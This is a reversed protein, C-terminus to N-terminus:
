YKSLQLFEKESWEGRIEKWDGHPNKLYVAPFYHIFLPTLCMTYAGVRHFVIRDGASLLRNNGEITFLRDYELCTNGGIVQPCPAINNEKSQYVLEKFYDTKHFFPDVDDRTADTTIFYQGDHRKVDMVECVYDFVSAVLANGPEVIITINRNQEDLADHFASAYNCFTPKGPMPGFYGGGLDWYELNLDYKKIVAQSYNIVNKYFNESRTRSTRHTHLGALEVNKLEKIMDIARKFDSGNAGGANDDSFGFRSNDDSHNEDDPSIASIDINLRIGVKHKKSESLMKLWEIERWTEINVIAGNEIARLFTEKSKLPGNYVIRNEKFGCKLALAFEHFSVVEAYCQNERATKLCYPLSNTKVSYGIIVKPFKEELAKRFDAINSKFGQEDFIFCPTVPSQYEKRKIQDM